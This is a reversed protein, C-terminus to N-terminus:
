SAATLVLLGGAVLTIAVCLYGLLVFLGDRTFLGFALLAVTGAGLSSMMPLVEMFPWGLPIITVVVLTIFRMPGTTLFQLRPKCRGDVFACPRRLFRVCGSLRHGAVERRLLFRPMWLRRRGTVAQVALLIITVAALTSVGPIGSLPSVLLLAVILILPTISRDGIEHLVDNISVAEKEAAREMSDLLYALTHEDQRM